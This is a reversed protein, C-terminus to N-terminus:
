KISDRIMQKILTGAQGGNDELWKIIDPETEKNVRVTIIKCKANYAKQQQKREDTM